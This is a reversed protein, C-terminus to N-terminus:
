KWVPVTLQNAHLKISFTSEWKTFLYKILHVKNKTNGLYAKFNKPLKQSDNFITIESCTTKQRRMREDSKISYQTDYKDPVVVVINSDKFASFISVELRDALDGFTQLGTHNTSQVVAMFDLISTSAETALLTNPSSGHM